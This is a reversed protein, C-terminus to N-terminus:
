WGILAARTKGEAPQGAAALAVAALHPLHSVSAIVRDHEAASMEITHAGLRSWFHELTVVDSKVAHKPPTLIVMREKFLDANATGPGHRAAGAMPHSGIFRAEAIVQALIGRKTSGTDTILCGGRTTDAVANILDPIKQVPASIIAMQADQIGATLDTTGRTIAKRKRATELNEKNPDIGFIEDALQRKRLALGISGGILGVGILAVKDFINKKSM